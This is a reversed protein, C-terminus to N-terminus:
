TTALHNRLRGAVMHDRTRVGDVLKLAAGPPPAWLRCILSRVSVQVDTTPQTVIPGSARNDNGHTGVAKQRNLLFKQGGGGGVGGGGGGWGGRLFTSIWNLPTSARLILFDM